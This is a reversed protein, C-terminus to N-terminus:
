FAYGVRVYGDLASVEAGVKFFPMAGGLAATIAMGFDFTYQYGAVLEPGIFESSNESSDRNRALVGPAIFAGHFRPSAFYLPFGLTVWQYRYHPSPGLDSSLSSLSLSIAAHESIGVAAAADYYHLAPGVPDVMLVFREGTGDARASSAVLLAALAVARM